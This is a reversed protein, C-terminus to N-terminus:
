LKLGWATGYLNQLMVDTKLILATDEINSIRKCFKELGEIQFKSMTKKIKTTKM